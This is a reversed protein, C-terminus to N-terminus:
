AWFHIAVLCSPSHLYHFPVHHPYLPAVYTTLSSLLFFFLIDMIRVIQNSCNDQESMTMLTLLPQQVHLYLPNFSQSKVTTMMGLTAPSHM